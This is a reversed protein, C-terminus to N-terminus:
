REAERLPRGDPVGLDSGLEHRLFGLLLEKRRVLTQAAPDLVAAMTLGDVLGLFREAIDLPSTVPGFVDQAAGQRIVDCLFELRRERQKHMEAQIIRDFPMRGWLALWFAPGPVAPDPMTALDVVARLRGVPGLRRREIELLAHELRHHAEALSDLTMTRKNGFYHTVIGASVGAVDSVERITLDKWGQTELIKIVADVVQRRRITEMGLKPM